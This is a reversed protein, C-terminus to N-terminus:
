RDYCRGTVMLENAVVHMEYLTSTRRIGYNCQKKRALIRRSSPFCVFGCDVIELNRYGVTDRCRIVFYSCDTAICEM